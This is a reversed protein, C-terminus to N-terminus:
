GRRELFDIIDSSEPMWRESTGDVVRLVPVTGRGRAALLAARHEPDRHIDRLEVDIGLREIASLVWRCYPCSPYYYLALAPGSM